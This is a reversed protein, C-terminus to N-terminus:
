LAELDKRRIKWGRDKIGTLTGLKLMRRLFTVTLGTLASAEPLTLYTTSVAVSEAVPPSPPSQLAKSILLALGRILDDGPIIKIGANPVRSLAEHAPGNGNASRSHLDSPLVFPAPAPRREAAIRAVDDPNYVAVPPTGEQPRLRQELKRTHGLREVTRKSCGIVRAADAILLWASLDTEAM